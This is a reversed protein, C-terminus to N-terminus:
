AVAFETLSREEPPYFALVIDQKPIGAALLDTAVGAETWDEEIWIKENKIQIHITVGKLRKKGQWGMRIWLYQDRQEDFVLCNESERNSASAVFRDYAILTKQVIERYSKLKDM